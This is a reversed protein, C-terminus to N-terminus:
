GRFGVKKGEEYEADPAQGIGSGPVMDMGGVSGQSRANVWAVTVFGGVLILLEPWGISITM